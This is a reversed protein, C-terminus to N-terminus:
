ESILKGGTVPENCGTTGPYTLPLGDMARVSLYAWAEAEMTHSSFGVEDATVVRGGLAEVGAAIDEMLCLNQCGGGTMIWLKPFKPLHDSAKVIANATVRVLSRLVDTPEFTDFAELEFDHRDLSKPSPQDFFNNSMYQEVIEDIVNGLRATEGGEDFSRNFHRQMWQDLLANGPGTDFAIPEDAVFTVNSIGGINVFAVPTLDKVEDPLNQALACHYAPALPAGQGGHIMDNARMDYAIPMGTMDSLAEGDGIQVTLRDEPRHLVTQGHFGIIDIFPLEDEFDDLFANVLNAHIQTIEQEVDALIGPREDRSTISKADVLAQELRERLEDDYELGAPLFDRKLYARGDTQIVALDIGDM